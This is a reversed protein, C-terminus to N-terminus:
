LKVKDSRRRSTEELLKHILEDALGQSTVDSTSCMSSELDRSISSGGGSKSKSIISGPSGPPSAMHLADGLSKKEHDETGRLFARLEHVKWYPKKEADLLRAKAENAATNARRCKEEAHQLNKREKDFEKKLIGQATVLNSRFAPNNWSNGMVPSNSCRAIADRQTSPRYFGAEFIGREGASM